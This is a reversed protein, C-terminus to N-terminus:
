YRRRRGSYWNYARGYWYRPHTVRYVQGQFRVKWLRFDRILIAIIGALLGVGWNSLADWYNIAAAATVFLALTALDWFQNWFRGRQIPFVFTLALALALSGWGLAWSPITMTKGGASHNRGIIASGGGKCL